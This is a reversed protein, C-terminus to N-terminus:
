CFAFSAREKKKLEEEKQRFENEQKELEAAEIQLQSLQDPLQQPFCCFLSQKTQRLFFASCVGESTYM